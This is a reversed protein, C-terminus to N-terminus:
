GSGTVANSEGSQPRRQRFAHSTDPASSTDCEATWAPLTVVKPMSGPRRARWSSRTWSAQPPENGGAYVREVDFTFGSYQGAHMASLTGIFTYGRAQGVQIPDTASCSEAVVVPGPLWVLAAAGLVALVFQRPTWILKTPVKNFRELQRLTRWGVLGAGTSARRAPETAALVKPDARSNRGLGAQPSALGLSVRQSPAPRRAMSRGPRSRSGVSCWLPEYRVARLRRADRAGSRSRAASRRGLYRAARRWVGRAGSDNV